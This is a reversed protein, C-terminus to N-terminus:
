TEDNQEGSMVAQRIHNASIVVQRCFNAKPIKLRNIKKLFAAEDMPDLNLIQLWLPLILQVDDSPIVGVFFGPPLPLKQPDPSKGQSSKASHTNDV